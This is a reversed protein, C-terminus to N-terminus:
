GNAQSRKLSTNGAAHGNRARDAVASARRRADSLLKGMGAAIARDRERTAHLYILAARTSSYGMREMLAKELEFGPRFVQFTERYDLGKAIVAGFV